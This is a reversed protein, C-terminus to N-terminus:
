AKLSQNSEITTERESEREREREREVTKSENLKDYGKRASEHKRGKV